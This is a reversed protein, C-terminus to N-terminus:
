PGGAIASWDGVVDGETRITITNDLGSASLAFGDCQYDSLIFEGGVVQVPSLQPVPGYVNKTSVTDQSPM